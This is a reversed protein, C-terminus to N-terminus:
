MVQYQWVFFDQLSIRIMYKRMGLHLVTSPKGINISFMGLEKLGSFTRWCSKDFQKGLSAKREGREKVSISCGSSNEYEQTNRVIELSLTEARTYLSKEITQIIQVRWTECGLMSIVVKLQKCLFLERKVYSKYISLYNNRFKRNCYSYVM